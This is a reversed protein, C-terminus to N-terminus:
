PVKEKTAAPLVFGFTSGEGPKSRMFVRGGHQEVISKVIALGLGTGKPQDDTVVVRYFREFLRAQAELPIGYGNDAVEVVVEGEQVHARVVVRGGEPTYKHANSLYNLLARYLWNDDGVVPPLAADLAVELSQGKEQFQLRVDNVVQDIVAALDVPARHFNVSASVSELHLLDDILDQMRNIGGLAIEVLERGEGLVAGYEQYLMVLASLTIGMPNRLDHAATQIFQTRVTEVEQLHTVNQMVVVWGGGEPDGSDQSRVPSIVASWHQGDEMTIEFVTVTDSQQHDIVRCLNERLRPHLPADCLPVGVIATADLDFLVAAAPNVLAIRGRNDIAIIADAASNLIASLRGRQALADAFLRANELAVGVQDAIARLVTVEERQFRYPTYNMVSLVGIVQGRGHMPVLAMAEIPEEGFAPFALREDGSLNGTIIVRDEQVAQGSLGEGVPVRMPMSVFDRTWGRQARLVLDGTEEEILSIGAADVHIVSLVAELATELVVDLDLSQSVIAAVTNIAELQDVRQKVEAILARNQHILSNQDGM